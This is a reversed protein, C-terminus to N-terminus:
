DVSERMRCVMRKSKKQKRGEWWDSVAVSVALCTYIVICYIGLGMLLANLTDFENPM